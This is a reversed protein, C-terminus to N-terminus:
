IPGLTGKMGNATMWGFPNQPIAQLTASTTYLNFGQLSPQGSPVPFSYNHTSGTVIYASTVDISSRLGCGPMGIFFLNDVGPDSVGFIDLGIVSSPEINSVVLNWNNGFM